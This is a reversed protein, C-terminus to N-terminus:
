KELRRLADRLATLDGHAQYKQQLSMAVSHSIPGHAYLSINTESIICVMTKKDDIELALPKQIHGSTGAGLNISIEISPKALMTTDFRFSSVPMNGIILVGAIKNPYWGVLYFGNTGFQYVGEQYGKEQAFGTLCALLAIVPVFLVKSLKKM